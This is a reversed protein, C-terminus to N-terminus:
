THRANRTCRQPLHGADVAAERRESIDQSSQSLLPRVNGVPVAFEGMQQLVDYTIVGKWESVCVCACVECVNTNAHLHSSFPSRHFSIGLDLLLILLLYLTRILALRKVNWGSPPSALSSSISHTDGVCRKRVSDRCDRPKPVRARWTWFSRGFCFLLVRLTFHCTTTTSFVRQVASLLHCLDM